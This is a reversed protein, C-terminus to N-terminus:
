EINKERGKTDKKRVAEDLDIKKPLNPLPNKTKRKFFLESPPAGVGRLVTNRLQFIAEKM